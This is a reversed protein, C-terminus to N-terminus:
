ITPPPPPRLPFRAYLDIISDEACKNCLINLHDWFIAVKKGGYKLEHKLDYQSAPQNRGRCTARHSLQGQHRFNVPHHEIFIKYRILCHM